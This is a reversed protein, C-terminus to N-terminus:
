NFRILNKLSVLKALQVPVLELKFINFEKVRTRTQTKKLQAQKSAQSLHLGLWPSAINIHSSDQSVVFSRHQSYFSGFHWTILTAVLFGYAVM